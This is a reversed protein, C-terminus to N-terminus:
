IQKQQERRQKKIAYQSEHRREKLLGELRLHASVSIHGSLRCQQLGKKPTLPSKFIKASFTYLSM